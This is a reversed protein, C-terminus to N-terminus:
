PAGATRKFPQSSKILALELILGLCTMIELIKLSSFLEKVLHCLRRSWKPCLVKTLIIAVIGPTISGFGVSNILHSTYRKSLLLHYINFINITLAVEANLNIWASVAWMVGILMSLTVPKLLRM